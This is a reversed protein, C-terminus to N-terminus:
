ERENAKTLESREPPVPVCGYEHQGYLVSARLRARADKLLYKTVYGSTRVADDVLKFNTFGWGWCELQRKQLPAGERQHMLIHYHPLGSEHAECVLLYRINAGSAKRVRKIWKTLEKSIESHRERFDTDEDTGDFSLVSRSRLRLDARCRMIYHSEPSLTLTGFWSREATLLETCARLRWLWYRAKLCAPCKHCRTQIVVSMPTGYESQRVRQDRNGPICPESSHESVFPNECDASIDWEFLTRQHVKCGAEVAKRALARVEVDKPSRM